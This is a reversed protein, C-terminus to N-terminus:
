RSISFHTESSCSSSASDLMEETNARNECIMFAPTRALTIGALGHTSMLTVVPSNSSSRSTRSM